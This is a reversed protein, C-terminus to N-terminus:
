GKIGVDFSDVIKYVREQRDLWNVASSGTVLTYVKGKTVSLAYMLHNAKGQNALIIEFSYYTFGKADKRQKPNIIEVKATPPLNKKLVTNAFRDAVQKPTGFVTIDKVDKRPADSILVSVQYTSDAPDSLRVAGKPDLQFAWNDPYLLAFGKEVDQYQQFGKPLNAASRGCAVLLVVLLIAMSRRVLHGM